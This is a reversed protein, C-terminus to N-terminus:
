DVVMRDDNGSVATQGQEEQDTNVPPLGRGLHKVIIDVIEQQQGETPFRTDLEEVVVNLEALNRPRLNLIM